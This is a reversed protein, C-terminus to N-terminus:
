KALYAATLSLVDRDLRSVPVADNKAFQVGEQVISDADVGPASATGVASTMVIAGAILPLYFARHRRRRNFYGFEM